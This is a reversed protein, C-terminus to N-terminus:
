RAPTAGATRCSYGSLVHSLQTKRRIISALAPAFEKWPVRDRACPPKLVIASRLVRTPRMFHTCLRAIIRDASRLNACAQTPSQSGCNINSSCRRRLSRLGGPGALRVVTVILHVFPHRCRAVQCAILGSFCRIKGWSLLESHVPRGREEWLRYAFPKIEKRNPQTFGSTM